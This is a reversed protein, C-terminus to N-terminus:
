RLVEVTVVAGNAVLDWEVDRHGHGALVARQLRLGERAVLEEQNVRAVLESRLSKGDEVRPVLAEIEAPLDAHETTGVVPTQAMAADLTTWAAAPSTASLDLLVRADGVAVDDGTRDALAPPLTVLSSKGPRRVLRTDGKAMPKLADAVLRLSSEDGLRSLGDVVALVGSRRTTTADERAPGLARPQAAPAWDHVERGTAALAERATASSSGVTDVQEAWAGPATDDIIWLATPVGAERAATLVETLASGDGWGPVTGEVGELLVLDAGDLAPQWSRRDLQRQQWEPALLASLRPGAAVAVTLDLAPVPSHAATVTPEPSVQETPAPATAAPEPTPEPTPEQPADAAEAPAAPAPQLETM